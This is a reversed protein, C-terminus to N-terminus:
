IPGEEWSIYEGKLKRLYPQVVKRLAENCEVRLREKEEDSFLGSTLFGSGHFEIDFFQALPSDVYKSTFRVNLLELMKGLIRSGEEEHRFADTLDEEEVIEAVRQVEPRFNVQKREIKTRSYKEKLSNCMHQDLINSPQIM